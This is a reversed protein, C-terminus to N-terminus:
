PWEGELKIRRSVSDPGIIEIDDPSIEGIAVGGELVDGSEVPYVEGEWLILAVVRDGSRVYGIYNLHFGIKEQETEKRSPSDEANPMRLDGGTSPSIENQSMSVRQRLFINRRPSPFRKNQINLLEKKILSGTEQMELLGKTNKEQLVGSYLFIGSAFVFFALLSIKARM